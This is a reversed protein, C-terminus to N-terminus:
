LSDQTNTSLNPLMSLLSLQNDSPQNLTANFSVRHIISFQNIHIYTKHKVTAYGKHESLYYGPILMDLHNMLTDRKVKAIISAAAISISKQEGFPFYHIPIDKYRTDSLDLPMADILFARPMITEQSLLNLAAKKMAILTGVRINYTDIIRHHAIGFSYTCHTTIWKYARIREEPTLEKSDRLLKYSTYPPVIVAATVVPGALCGRGVEDIGCVKYGEQWAAKEYYNKSFNNIQNSFRSPKNMSFNKGNSLIIKFLVILILATNSVLKIM